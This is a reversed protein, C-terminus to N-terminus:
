KKKKGYYKPKNYMKPKKGHDMKPKNYMKPKKM